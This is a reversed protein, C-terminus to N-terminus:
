KIGNEHWAFRICKIYLTEGNVYYTGENKVAKRRMAENIEDM